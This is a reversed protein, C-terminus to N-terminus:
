PLLLTCLSRPLLPVWSPTWNQGGSGFAASISGQASCPTRSELAPKATIPRIPLILDDSHMRELSAIFKLESSMVTPASSKTVFIKTLFVRCNRLKERTFSERGM